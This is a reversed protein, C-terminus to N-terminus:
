KAPVTWEVSDELYSVVTAKGPSAFESPVAVSLIGLTGSPLDGEVIFAKDTLIDKRELSRGGISIDGPDFSWPKNAEYRIIFLIRGKVDETGWHRSYWSLWDSPMDGERIAHALTKDVYIFEMKGRAGIVMNGLVQGEPYIVVTREQVLTELDASFAAISAALLFLAMLFVIPKKM